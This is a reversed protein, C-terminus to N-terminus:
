QWTSPGSSRFTWRAISSNIIEGVVNPQYAHERFHRWRRCSFLLARASTVPKVTKPL